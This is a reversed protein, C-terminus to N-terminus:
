SSYAELEVNGRLLGEEGSSSISINRLNLLRASTNIQSIFTKFGAYSGSFSVTIKITKVSSAERLLTDASSTSISTVLVGSSSGLEQILHYLSPLEADKPFTAEIKDLKGRRFDLERALEELNRLTEEKEELSVEGRAVYGKLEIFEQYAPWDLFFGVGLSVFILLISIIFSPRM